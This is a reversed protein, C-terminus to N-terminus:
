LHSKYIINLKSIKYGQIKYVLADIRFKQKVFHSSEMRILASM